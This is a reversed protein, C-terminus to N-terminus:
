EGASARGDVGDDVSVTSWRGRLLVTGGAVAAVANSLAIAYWVGTADFGLGVVLAAAVVARFGWQTAVNLVMSLRTAGAGCFGGNAVHFVAMLAWTPAVIRLYEAGYRIVAASGAGTVFVGVLPRAFWTSVAGALLFTGVLLGTALYVIRHARERHGDGLNQGVVTEVTMGMAVTPFWVILAYRDVIGYAAVAATGTQAVLATLIVTAVASVAQEVGLPGGIRVLRRVTGLHPRLDAITVAPGVRGSFLLWLGAVAGLSRSLLTAVAAGAVGFGTFGTTSVLTHQLVDTGTWAFLPNGAFGFVFFPDLVVNLAVTVVMLCMPIKTEGWGRLIDQFVFFGFTVPLGLFAIRTYVTAMSAIPSGPTAGVVRLFLPTALFGLVAFAVSLVANAALVQGAVRGVRTDDGAGTYQSILITGANTIGAGVSVILAVLPLSFALASVADAGLRGVWFTDTVSYLLQLLQTAMVPAALALLPRLLPGQTLDSRGSDGDIKGDDIGAGATGHDDTVGDATGHDDTAEDYDTM